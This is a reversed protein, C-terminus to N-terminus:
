PIIIRELAVERGGERVVLELRRGPVDELPSISAQWAIAPYDPAFSGRLGGKITGGALKDLQMRGLRVARDKWASDAIQVMGDGVAQIVVLSVGGLITLAILVELLTFGAKRRLSKAM